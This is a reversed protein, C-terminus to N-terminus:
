FHEVTLWFKMLNQLSFPLTEPGIQFPITIILHETIFWKKNKFDTIVLCEFFVYPVLLLLISLCFSLHVFLSVSSECM